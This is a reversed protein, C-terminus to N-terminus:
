PGTPTTITTSEGSSAQDPPIRLDFTLANEEMTYIHSGLPISSPLISSPKCLPRLLGTTHRHVQWAQTWTWSGISCNTGTPSGQRTKVQFSRTRSPSAPSVEGERGM